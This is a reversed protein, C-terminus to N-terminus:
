TVLIWYNVYEILKGKDVSASVGEKLRCVIGLYDDKKENKRKLNCIM